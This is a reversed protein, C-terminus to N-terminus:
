LYLTREGFAKQFSFDLARRLIVDLKLFLIDRQRRNKREQLFLSFFYKEYDLAVKEISYRDDAQSKLDDGYGSIEEKSMYPIEEIPKLYIGVNQLLGVAPHEPNVFVPVGAAAYLQCKTPPKMQQRFSRSKIDIVARCSSLELAQREKSWSEFTWGNITMVSKGNIQIQPNIGLKKLALVIRDLYQPLLGVNSLLILNQDTFYRQMSLYKVTFPIYELVGVWLYNTKINNSRVIRYKAYHDILSFDLTKPLYKALKENHLLASDILSLVPRFKWVDVASYAADIPLWCLRKHRIKVVELISPFHKVFVVIDANPSVDEIKSFYEYDIISEKGSDRLHRFIDDIVWNFSALPQKPGFSILLKRM